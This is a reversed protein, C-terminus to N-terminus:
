AVGDTKETRTSRITAYMYDDFVKLSDRIRQKPTRIYVSDLVKSNAWGGLRELVQKEVGLGNMTTAFQARLDHFTMQLGHKKLLRDYRRKLAGYNESIIFDDENKHPVQQILNYIYDPIPIDRTSQETKNRNEVVDHGNICVRARRIRIFRSGDEEYIDSYKLGRVESIRMGGCWVSLLCPLEVSSGIIVKLVEGLPPLEDKVTKPPLRLKRISPLEVEFLLAASRILTYASKITKYSMGQEADINIARQIDILKLDTITCGHISILRNKALSEYGYLTTPAIVNRKSDIYAELAEKVTIRSPTIDVNLKKFDEAMKIAEWATDATFSKTLNKGNEDKGYVVQTRFRGSPLLQAKVPKQSRMKIWREIYPSPPIFTILM